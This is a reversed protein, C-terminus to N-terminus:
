SSALTGNNSCIQNNYNMDITKYVTLLYIIMKLMLVITTSLVFLAIQECFRISIHQCIRILHVKLDAKFHVAYFSVSSHM